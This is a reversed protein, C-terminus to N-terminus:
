QNQKQKKNRIENNGKNNGWKSGSHDQSFDTSSQSLPCGQHSKLLASMGFRVWVPKKAVRHRHIKWLATQAGSWNLLFCGTVAQLATRSSVFTSIATYTYSCHYFEAKSNTPKPIMTVIDHLSMTLFISHRKIKLTQTHRNLVSLLWMCCIALVPNIIVTFGNTKQWTYGTVQKKNFWVQCFNHPSSFDDALWMLLHMCKKTQSKKKEKLFGLNGVQHHHPSESWSNQDHVWYSCICYKWLDAVSPVVAKLEKLTITIFKYNLSDSSTNILVLILREIWYPCYQCWRLESPTLSTTHLNVLSKAYCTSGLALRRSPMAKTSWKPVLLFVSISHEKQMGAKHSEKVNLFLLFLSFANKASEEKKKLLM